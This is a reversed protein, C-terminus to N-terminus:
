VRLRPARHMCAPTMSATSTTGTMAPRRITSARRSTPTRTQRRMRATRGNCASAGHRRTTPCERTVRRSTRITSASTVPIATASTIPQRQMRRGPVKPISVEPSVCTLTTTSPLITVVTVCTSVVPRSTVTARCSSVQRIAAASRSSVSPSPLRFPFTRWCWGPQDSCSM